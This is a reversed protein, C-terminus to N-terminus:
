STKTQDNGLQRVYLQFIDGKEEFNKWITYSPSATSLLCITGSPTHDYAFKVAAEMSDTQLINPLTQQTEKFANLIAEGSDPFLVVNQIEKELVIKVLEHFDYGRNQGGLFITGIKPLSNIAAITSEPTTSIADDYFPIDKFTGVPQLRHALPQFSAIAQAIDEDSVNCIRAATIAGRINSRNHEGLLPITTVSEPLESIFPLTKCDAEKAWKTLLEFQPNYIFYDEASANKIIQHKAEYYDEVTGHYNIHDPFLSVIVSVHPSYNLDQLQYSSLECVFIADEEVPNILYDLMPTGINGILHVHKGAQKLMAYILSSTTSKGKSGTIGIKTHNDNAFFINTATTYPVNLLQSPIGPSKIVIDADHQKELYKPDKSQDAILIKASPVKAKLFRETSQGEKGYGLILITKNQLETIQM